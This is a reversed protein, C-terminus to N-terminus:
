DLSTSRIALGQRVEELKLLVLVPAQVVVVLVCLNMLLTHHSSLTLESFSRLLMELCLILRRIEQFVVLGCSGLFMGFWRSLLYKFFCEAEQM